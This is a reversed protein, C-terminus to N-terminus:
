DDDQDTEDPEDTDDVDDAHEAFPRTSWEGGVRTLIEVRREAAELQAHCHKTLQVGEEFGALADALDLEGEELRDVIGELRSLAVEFSLHAFPDTAADGAPATDARKGVKASADAKGAKAAKAAREGGPAGTKQARSRETM